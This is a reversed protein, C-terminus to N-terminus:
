YTHVNRIQYCHAAFLHIFNTIFLFIANNAHIISIKIQKYYIPIFISKKLHLPYFIFGARLHDDILIKSVKLRSVYQRM